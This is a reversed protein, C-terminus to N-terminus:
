VAGLAAKFAILRMVDTLTIVAVPANKGDVVYVRHVRNGTLIELLRGLTDNATVTLVPLAALTEDSPHGSKQLIIFDLVPLLLRGFDQRRLGRLDSASLNGVLRGQADVVAVGSVRAREMEEFGAIAATSALVSIPQAGNRQDSALCNLQRLTKSLLETHLCEPNAAVFALVDSQSVLEVLRGEADCLAVRHVEEGGQDERVVFHHHVLERISRGLLAVSSVGIDAQVGFACVEMLRDSFVEEGVHQLMAYRARTEGAEAPQESSGHLISPDAERARKMVHRLLQLTDVVGLCCGDDARLVPASLINHEALANFADEVSNTLELSVVRTLVRRTPTRSDLLERVSSDLSCHNATSDEPAGANANIRLSDRICMESGVLSRLM